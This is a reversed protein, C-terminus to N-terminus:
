EDNEPRQTLDLREARGALLGLLVGTLTSIVTVLAQTIASTDATPDRIEVVVVGVTTLLIVGAVLFTLTLVLIEIVSRGRM